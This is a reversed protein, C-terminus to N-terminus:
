RAEARMWGLEGQFTGDAGGWLALVARSWRRAPGTDGTRHAVEARLIMTRVMTAVEVPDGFSGFPRFRISALNADLQAASYSTDGASLLLGAVPWTTDFTRLKAPTLRSTSDAWRQVAARNGRAFEAQLTLLWDGMGRLEALSPLTEAPFALTAPRGLDEMIREQRRDPALAQQIASETLRWLARISDAPGGMAAYMLLGPAAELLPKPLDWNPEAASRRAQEAALRARGTLAALATLVSPDAAGRLTPSGIVSDALSRARDLFDIRDPVGFQLLTRVEADIVRVVQGPERALRRAGRASDIAAPDIALAMAEVLALRAEVSMPAETAWTLALTDLLLRQRRVAEEKQGAPDDPVGTGISRPYPIFVLSDGRWSPAAVFTTTDPRVAQGKRHRNVSLYLLNDSLSAVDNGPAALISPLLRIANLYARQAEHYSSRFRWSSQSAADRVVISDARLCHSLGYWAAFRRPEIGTVARWLPCARQIQGSGMALAAQAMLSDSRPLDVSGAVAQQAAPFWLAPERGRWIRVLALWLNAAPYRSDLVVAARFASDAAALDWAVLARQGSDFAQRAPLLRTGARAVGGSPPNSRFLLSDALIRFLSDVGSMSGGLRLSARGLPTEGPGLDYLRAFIRLSDRGGAAGVNGLIFRRVGVKCALERAASLHELDQGGRALAERLQFQDVVEVGGWRSIGDALLQEEGVRSVGSQYAFPFVAYRTTDALAVSPCANVGPPWFLWAAAVAATVGGIGLMWNVWAPARKLFRPVLDAPRIVLESELGAAFAAMSAFRDDRDESLARLIAHAASGPLEPRARRLSQLLTDSGHAVGFPLRGALMEFLVCALSYQDARGDIDAGGHIQEPAMYAPTGIAMNTDTLHEATTIAQRLMRAIGFDSIFVHGTSLLLNAPKIDRHVLGQAHAYGLGSAVQQGLSLVEPVGPPPGNLLRDQLTGGEVIPMIYYLFARPGAGYGPHEVLLEDSDYLPLIHPHHLPAVFEIEQRFRAPGIALAVERRLLKLAVSRHNKLDEARFVTAM